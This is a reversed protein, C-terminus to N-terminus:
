DDVKIAGAAEPDFGEPWKTRETYKANRLDTNYLTAGCLIAKALNAERLNVYSLDADTFDANFLNAGELNAGEMQDDWTSLSNNDKSLLAVVNLAFDESQIETFFEFKSMKSSGLKARQLNAGRLDTNTLNAGRLDSDSLNALVLTAKQLIAARFDTKSLNANLLFAKTFNAFQLSAGNLNAKDIKINNCQSANFISRQANLGLFAANSLDAGLFSKDCLSGDTNWGEGLIVAVAELAVNNSHSAMQRITRKKEQLYNRYEVIRDIGIISLSIVIFDPLMSNFLTGQPSLWSAACLVLSGVWLSLSVPNGPESFWEAIPKSLAELAPKHLELKHLGYIAWAFIITAILLAIM